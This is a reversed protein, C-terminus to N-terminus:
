GLFSNAHHFLFGPWEVRSHKSHKSDVQILIIQQKRDRLITVPVSKGENARMARDWDATTAIPDNGVQLIIDYPKLGSAAGESKRTVQKVMVGAPINLYDQM